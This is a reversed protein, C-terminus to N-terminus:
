IRKRCVLINLGLQQGVITSM